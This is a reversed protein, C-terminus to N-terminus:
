LTKMSCNNWSRHRGWPKKGARCRTRTSWFRNSLSKRIPWKTPPKSSLPSDEKVSYKGLFTTKMFTGKNTAVQQEFACWIRSLKLRTRNLWLMRRARNTTAKRLASRKSRLTNQFCRVKSTSVSPSTTPCLRYRTLNVTCTVAQSTVRCIMSIQSWKIRSVRQGSTAWRWVYYLNYDMTQLQPLNEM